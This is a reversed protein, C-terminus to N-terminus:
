LVYPIFYDGLFLAPLPDLLHNRYIPLVMSKSLNLKLSNALFWGFVKSLDSNVARIFEFVMEKPRSHYIQLDRDITM